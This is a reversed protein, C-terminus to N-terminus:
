LGKCRGPYPYLASCLARVRIEKLARVGIERIRDGVGLVAQGHAVVQRRLETRPFDPLM